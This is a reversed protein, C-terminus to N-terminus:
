SAGMRLGEHVLHLEEIAVEGTKANLTPGAVKTPLGRDFVWEAVFATRATNWVQVHGDCRSVPLTGNVIGTIWQWMANDATGTTAGVFIGRKLVIPTLRVRGVRRGVANNRGGELIDKVESELDLGSCEAFTGDGLLNSGSDAPPPDLTLTVQFRFTQLLQDTEHAV